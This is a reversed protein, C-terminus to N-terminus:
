RTVVEPEVFELQNPNYEQIPEEDQTLLSSYPSDSRMDIGDEKAKKQANIIRTLEDYFSATNQAFSM